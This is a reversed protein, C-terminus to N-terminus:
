RRSVQLLHRKRLVEAELVLLRWSILPRSLHRPLLSQSQREEAKPGAERLVPLLWSIQQQGQRRPLYRSRPRVGRLVLLLSFTLLQSQPQRLNKIKLQFLLRLLKLLM